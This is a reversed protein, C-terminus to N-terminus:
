CLILVFIAGQRNNTVEHVVLQQIKGKNSVQAGGFLLFAFARGCVIGGLMGM